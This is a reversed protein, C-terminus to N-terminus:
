RSEVSITHLWNNYYKIIDTVPADVTVGAWEACRALETLFVSENGTFTKAVNWIYASKKLRNIHEAITRDHLEQKTPPTEIWRFIEGQYNEMLETRITKPLQLFEDLTIPPNLNWSDSRVTNWYNTLAALSIKEDYGRQKIFAHYDTFFIVRANPWFKLTADFCQTSHAVLFLYKEHAILNKIV